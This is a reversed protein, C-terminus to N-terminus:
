KIAQKRLLSSAVAIVAGRTLDRLESRALRKWVELCHIADQGPLIFCQGTWLSVRVVLQIPVSTGEAIAMPTSHTVCGM